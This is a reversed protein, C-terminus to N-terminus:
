CVYEFSRQLQNITSWPCIWAPQSMPVPLIGHVAAQFISIIFANADVNVAGAM